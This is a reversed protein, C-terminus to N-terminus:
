ETSSGTSSNLQTRLRQVVETVSRWEPEGRPGPVAMMGSGYNGELSELISEVETFRNQQLYQYALYGELAPMVEVGSDTVLSSFNENGALMQYYEEAGVTNARLAAELAREGAVMGTAYADPYETLLQKFANDTHQTDGDPTQNRAADYLAQLRKGYKNQDAEHFQANREMLEKRHAAVEPSAGPPVPADSKSLKRPQAGPEKPEPGRPDRSAPDMWAPPPPPFDMGRAMQDSPRGKQAKLDAMQATIRDVQAKLTEIARRDGETQRSLSLARYGMFASVTSVVAFFVLLGIILNFRKDTDM